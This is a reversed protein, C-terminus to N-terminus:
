ILTNGVSSTLRSRKTHSSQRTKHTLRLASLTQSPLEGFLRKYDCTFQSLHWFGWQSAINCINDHPDNLMSRRVANLRINKLFTAPSQGTVRLFCNQLARRSTYTIKCLEDVNLPTEPHELVIKRAQCVIQQAKQRSINRKEPSKEQAQFLLMVLERIDSKFQKIAAPQNFLLSHQNMNSLISNFEHKFGQVLTKNTLAGVKPYPNDTLDSLLEEPVSVVLLSCNEPTQLMLEEQFGCWSVDDKQIPKGLWRAESDLQNFVSFSLSNKRSEGYQFVSRSLSEEYIQIGELWLEKLSGEFRGTSLQEYNLHCERLIQSHATIEHIGSESRFGNTLHEAVM